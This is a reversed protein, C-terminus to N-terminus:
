SVEDQLLRPMCWRCPTNFRVALLHFLYASRRLALLVSASASM